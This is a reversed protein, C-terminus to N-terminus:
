SKLPSQGWFRQGMTQVGSIPNFYKFHLVEDGDIASKLYAVGYKFIPDFPTGKVEMDILPSPINHLEKPEGGEFASMAYVVSNGTLLKYGVIEWMLQEYSQYSNPKLLLKEVDTNDVRELSKRKYIASQAIDKNGLASKYKLY